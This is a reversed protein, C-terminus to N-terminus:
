PHAHIFFLDRSPMLFQDFSSTIAVLTTTLNGNGMNAMEWKQINRIGMARKGSKGNDM